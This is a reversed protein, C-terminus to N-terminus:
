RGECIRAEAVLAKALKRATAPTMNHVTREGEVTRGDRWRNAEGLTLEVYRAPYGRRADARQISGVYSNDLAIM